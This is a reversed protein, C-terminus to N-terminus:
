PTSPDLTAKAYSFESQSLWFEGRVFGASRVPYAAFIL